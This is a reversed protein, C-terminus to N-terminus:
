ALEEVKDLLSDVYSIAFLLAKDDYMSVDAMSALELASKTGGAKLVDLWADVAKKDAKAIRQGIATGITLGASYTYSYLGMFYHPQRMWTLQAGENIEVSDGWFEKLTTIFFNNLINLSLSENNDLAEYVRRQFDAELLHTVMNHFYTRSIFETILQRKDEKNIDKNLLYECMIVENATSPAEVFYLSPEPTLISQNKGILTFHTAHGLEHALVLAESLLGTWNLLIYAPGKHYTSCFGGTSKTENMPFDIWRDDFSKHIIDTYEKGFVKFTDLLIEKVQEISINAMKSATFPMKIDALSVKELGKEKALMKAYRRMVKSFEKMITDIQRNYAERTINQSFLLYDIVSSFGRLTAMKKDTMVYNIYNNAATYQYKELGRHFSEWSKRRINYDKHCEYEGEFMAYSNAYIQGDVIFDDFKLDQFKTAGYLSYQNYISASLSSLVEEVEKSLLIKKNREIDEIFYRYEKRIQKVEEILEKDLLAIESKIFTLKSDACELFSELEIVNKENIEVTKDVEYALTAYGSIYSLRLQLNELAELAKILNEKSDLKTNFEENFKIIDEKLLTCEKEYKEQSEFLHSLDWTEEINLESRLPLKSM